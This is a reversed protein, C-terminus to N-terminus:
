LFDNLSFFTKEYAVNDTCAILVELWTSPEASRAGGL